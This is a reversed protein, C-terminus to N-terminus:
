EHKRQSPPRKLVRLQFWANIGGRRASTEWVNSCEDADVSASATRVHASLLFKARSAVHHPMILSSRAHVFVNCM